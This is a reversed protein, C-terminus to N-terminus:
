KDHGSEGKKACFIRPRTMMELHHWPKIANKILNRCKYSCAIYPKDLVNELIFKPHLFGLRVKTMLEVINGKRNEEDYNIWRLISNWVIEESKVDLEDEEIIAKIEELPLEL